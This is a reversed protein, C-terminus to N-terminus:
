RWKLGHAPQVSEHPVSTARAIQRGYSDTKSADSEVYVVNISPPRWGHDLTAPDHGAARMHAEWAEKSAHGFVSTVVACHEVGTPDVFTASQGVAVDVSELTEPM